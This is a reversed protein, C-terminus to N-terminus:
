AFQILDTHIESERVALEPFQAGLQGCLWACVPNETEFHGADILNVGQNVASQFQHYKVDGTVFTDCGAAVVQPLFDMCAGGGVAVRHVPQGADAYRLGPCRLQTRVFAVFADMLMPAVTGIRGLGGSVQAAPVLPVTQTLGLLQALCDNVGGPATDLNTHMAIAAIGHEALTLLTRGTATDDSVSKTSFMLPHHTLVLEAGWVAAEQAVTETPDLAVLVKTVERDRRGCLLGVNDWEEKGAEPALQGCFELLQAVTVM